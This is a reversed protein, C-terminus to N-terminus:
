EIDELTSIQIQFFEDFKEVNVVKNVMYDSYEDFTVMDDKFTKLTTWKDIALGRVMVRWNKKHKALEQLTVRYDLLAHIEAVSNFMAIQWIMSRSHYDKIEGRITEYRYDQKGM